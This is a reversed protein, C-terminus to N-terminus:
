KKKLYEWAEGSRMEDLTWQGYALNHFVKMNIKGNEISSISNIKKLTINTFHAPVGSIMAKIGATSQDSVFAWANKLLIDLPIPSQKNHILIKRDTYKKLEKITNNVWDNLQFFNKIYVSPESLIIYDGKTRKTKIMINLKEFRDPNNLGNSSHYYDNKVIRFYGDYDHIITQKYKISRKSANFYGHEIYYYNKSKKLLDGTGRLIGYTIFPKSTDNFKSINIPSVNLGKAFSGVIKKSMFHDTTICFPIQTM